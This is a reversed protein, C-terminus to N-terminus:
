ALDTTGAPSPDHQSTRPVDYDSALTALMEQSQRADLADGAVRSLAARYSEVDPPEKLFLSSTYHQAYVIPKHAEYRMLWFAPGFIGPPFAASPIVRIECGARHGTLVLHLMQEHMVQENGVVSRLPQEHIFFVFQPRDASRLLSQRALRAQVRLEVADANFVGALRFLARAYGETQLIGPVLQPEFVTISAATTEHTILTSLEDPLQDHHPRLRYPDDAERALDRLRRIEDGSVGCFALLRILDFEEIGRLGHEIRSIKSASCGLKRALQAETLGAALRARRLDNGLEKAQPTAKRAEM